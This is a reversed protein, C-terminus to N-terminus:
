DLDEEVMDANEEDTNEDTEETTEWGDEHQGESTTDSVNEPIPFSVNSISALEEETLPTFVPDEGEKSELRLLPGKDLATNYSGCPRCKMGVIHFAVISTKNCDKCLIERHLGLYERPMPTNAVERDIDAWVRSMDHMSLGCTPCAFLGEKIMGNFCDIHLLHSCPPIHAERRSTHIDELCVPCNNHSTNSICKHEKGAPLCLGCTDCHTFKDRGGARCIGCGDCHFQGKDVDDFLKCIACFYAGGFVTGCEPMICLNSVTQRTNCEICVVETVARRDLSHTSVEDDHCFRCNYVTDCCPSVLMCKRKYHQCGTMNVSCV